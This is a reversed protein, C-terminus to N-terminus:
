QEGEQKKFWIYEGTEPDIRGVERAPIGAVIAYDSTSKTVVAGACVLNARGLKVGPTVTVGSALWCGDGIVVSEDGDRETRASFWGTAPDFKHNGAVISCHPGILVHEGITVNGNVYSYLGIFSHAGIQEPPIRIIAGPAVAVGEAPIGLLEARRLDCVSNDTLHTYETMQEFLLSERDLKPDSKSM